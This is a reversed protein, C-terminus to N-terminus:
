CVIGHLSPKHVINVVGEKGLMELVRCAKNYGISYTRQLLEATCYNDKVLNKSVYEKANEFVNEDTYSDLKIM